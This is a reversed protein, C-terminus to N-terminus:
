YRQQHCKPAGSVGVPTHLTIHRWRTIMQYVLDLMISPVQPIRAGLRVITRLTLPRNGGLLPTIPTQHKRTAPRAEQQPVGQTDTFDGERAGGVAALSQGGAVKPCCAEEDGQGQSGVGVSDGWARDRDGWAWVTVGYGAM